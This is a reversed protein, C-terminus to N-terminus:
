VAFRAWAEAIREAHRNRKYDPGNYMKSFTDWQHERLAQALGRRSRVYAVFARLHEDQGGLIMGNIFDQASAYGASAWNFGMIQFRGWSASEIAAARDLAVARRLREHEAPGGQYGGPRPNSIDPHKASYEGGTRRHFIHREFLITVQGDILYGGRPAEVAAVAQIAAVDCDLMWAAGQWDRNTLQEGPKSM